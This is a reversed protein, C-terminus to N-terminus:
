SEGGTRLRDLLARREAEITDRNIGFFDALLQEPQRYDPMYRADGWISTEGEDLRCIRLGQDYTLWDYFDQLLEAKGSNIIEAQKDLEPTSM